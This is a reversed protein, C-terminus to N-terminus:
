EIKSSITFDTITNITMNQGNANMTIGMDMVGEGGKTWCTKKDLKYDMKFSGDVKMQANEDTPVIKADVAIVYDNKEIAKLTYTMLMKIPLKPNPVVKESKWSEGVKVAQEPFAIFQNDTSNGFQQLQDAPMNPFVESLSTTELAEGRPSLVMGISKNLMQGMAAHMAQGQPSEQTSPDNSDYKIEGAGPMNMEMRMGSFAYDLKVNGNKEVGEINFKTDMGMVVKQAAGPIEIDMKMNLSTIYTTGAKPKLRLLAKKGKGIGFAVGSIMVALVFLIQVTFLRRKM